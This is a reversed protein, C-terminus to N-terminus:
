PAFGKKGALWADMRAKLETAPRIDEVTMPERNFPDIPDNLLHQTITSRDVFHGSPLVVPDKMFTSLIEDLFEDPADALFAEDALVTRSALEVLEPLSEFAIMSEGTLLNLKRTTKVASRLLNPDCGAKACEVQFVSSSAFLSFIACLDRLMEKPRFDYQEPNDVKLDLGKAGVLKTLVHLLMAVLRPCLEELLFLERIDGDTNLYGFMQLTKNCLPLAYKVERENDDLRSSVQSQEDETLRGWDQQNKMKEQAERIEPLKQMVTAILTNTENIIGNAFKIFSARDQTIRRFAPRHEPSNWLYKILSAIKARHSMKDYYGTHEVEGYLLLLSPALTEQAATDSLLFTQGGALLDTSVSAPVDRRDGTEPPMFLEYLVDGLMARLNYNRVMSAYKSSLLKVVLKFVYRFELNRLMKPKLKAIAMIIDCMDSVFDEPMTRLTDDDMDFLVKAVFNGFRLTDKVMEEEFLAVESSRQKSVMLAFQPDSQLDGNRNSIQWHLHSIHRLLSEHYSLQPVIGFHLSRACLFFCQPIFSNKPSYSDIMRSDDMEGLRSVAHEGSTAFVGSHAEPSSVFGPDILHQKKGDDVFPDCLKLLVVSMNLLLSSSSVKSPDPRMASANANVDLADMFWQMVQSRASAGSKVLNLVLNKCAEQHARLQSRQTTNTNEMSVLSQRLVSSPSFATNNKPAGVRLILGLLTEKELGPGSRKMYPRNGEGALMQLFSNGTMNAPMPPRVIQAAEPTGAAPLLFSASQSVAEAAKKHQCTSALASVILMPSGDAGEVGDVVSECKRLLESFYDVVSNIATFLASSDQQVLEDCVLHYFSSAAGNMGFTIATNHETVSSLLCKALQLAGDAGLEFLDPEMLTSAAYNVVQRQCEELIDMIETDPSKSSQRLTKLEESARRHCLGLYVLLPKSPPVTNLAPDIAPLSLRTALIEAITQATIATDGIDVVVASSSANMSLAMSASNSKAMSSGKLTIELIKHLLMEKNRQLKKEPDMPENKAKKKTQEKAESLNREDTPKSIPPSSSTEDTDMPQPTASGTSSELKNNNNNNNNGESSQAERSALSDGDTSRSVSAAQEQRQAQQLADMRALRQARVEEPTLVPGTNDPPAEEEHSSGEEANRGSGAGGRLAWNALDPLFGSM